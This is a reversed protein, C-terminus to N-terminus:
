PYVKNAIKKFSSLTPNRRKQKEILPNLKHYDAKWVEYLSYNHHLIVLLAYHFKHKSFRSIRGSNKPLEESESRRTKIQVKRGANDIADFGEARPDLALELGLQNSILIEGIEGTIGLKRKGHMLKEYNLAIPIAKRVLEVTKNDILITEKATKM